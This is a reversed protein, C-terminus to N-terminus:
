LLTVYGDPRLQGLMMHEAGIVPSLIDRLGTLARLQDHPLISSLARGVKTLQIVKFNITGKDSTVDDFLGSAGGPNKLQVDLRTTFIYDGQRIGGRKSGDSGQGIGFSYYTPLTTLLILGGEALMQLENENLQSCAAPVFGDVRVSCLKEFLVATDQDLEDVVRLTKMTFTGPRSVESALVKGWRQRLEESTAGSAYHEWRNLIDPGVDTASESGTEIKVADEVLTDAAIALCERLNELDGGSKALNCLLKRALAPDNQVDHVLSSTAAQVLSVQTSLLARQIEINRATSMGKQQIKRGMLHDVAAIFRSRITAKIGKDSLAVELGVDSDDSSV